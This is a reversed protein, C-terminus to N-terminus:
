IYFTDIEIRMPINTHIYIMIMNSSNKLFYSEKAIKRAFSLKIHTTIEKNNNGLYCQAFVAHSFLM